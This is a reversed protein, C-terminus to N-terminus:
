HNNASINAVVLIYAINVFICRFNDNWPIFLDKIASNIVSDLLNYRM